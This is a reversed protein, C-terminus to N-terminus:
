DTCLANAPIPLDQGVTVEILESSQLKYPGLNPALYTSISRRHLGNSIYTLYALRHFLVDEERRIAYISFKHGLAELNRIETIDGFAQM